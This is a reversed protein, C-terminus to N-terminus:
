AFAPTTLPAALRRSVAAVSIRLMASSNFTRGCHTAHFPSPASANRVQAASRAFAVSRSLSKLM